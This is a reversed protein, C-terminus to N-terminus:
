IRSDAKEAAHAAPPAAEVELEQEEAPHKLYAMCEDESTFGLAQQIHAVAVTPRYAACMLRMGVHRMCPVLLDMFRVSQGPAM